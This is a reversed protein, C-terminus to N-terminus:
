PLPLFNLDPMPFDKRNDTVLTLSHELAVAAIMTDALSLTHGQRAWDNKLTGGRRAITATIDYCDLSGLFEESKAEEGPRMAAYVEGLNISTTALARGSHVLHALLERRGNRLRLTDILVTTDLLLIM